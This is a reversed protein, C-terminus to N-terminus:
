IYLTDRLSWGTQANLAGCPFVYHLSVTCTYLKDSLSWETQLNVSAYSFECHSFDKWPNLTDMLSWHPLIFTCSVDPPPPYILLLTYQTESKLSDPIKFTWMLVWLPSFGNLHVYHAQVYQLRLSAPCDFCCMLIWLSLLRGLTCHTGSARTQLNLTCKFIVLELSCPSTVNSLLWELKCHIAWDEDHENLTSISFKVHYNM